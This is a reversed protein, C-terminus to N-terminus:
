SKGTCWAGDVKHSYWVKGNKEWRKMEVDHIPCLHSQGNNDSSPSQPAAPSEKRPRFPLVECPLHGNELLWKLALNAKELLERGNDGRLTIQCVFGEPTQYRTNWSAPAESTVVANKVAHNESM